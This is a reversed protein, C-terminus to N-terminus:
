KQKFIEKFMKKLSNRRRFRARIRAALGSNPNEAPMMLGWDDDQYLWNSNWGGMIRGRRRRRPQFIVEFFIAIILIVIRYM